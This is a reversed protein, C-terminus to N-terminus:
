SIVHVNHSVIGSNHRPLAYVALLDWAKFVAVNSAEDGTIYLSRRQLLM